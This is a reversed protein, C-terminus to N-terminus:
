PTKQRARWKKDRERKRALREAHRQLREEKQRRRREIKEAERLEPNARLEAEFRWHALLAGHHREMRALVQGGWCGALRPKIQSEFDAEGRSWLFYIVAMVAREFM